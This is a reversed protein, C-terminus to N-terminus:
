YHSMRESNSYIKITSKQKFKIASNNNKYNNTKVNKDIRKDKKIKLHLKYKLIKHM